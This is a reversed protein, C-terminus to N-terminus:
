VGFSTIGSMSLFTFSAVLEIVELPRLAKAKIREGAGGGVILMSM